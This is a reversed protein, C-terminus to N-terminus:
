LPRGAELQAGVLPAGHTYNTRHTMEQGAGWLLEVNLGVHVHPGGGIENHCTCAVVEGKAIRAGNSPARDLHGFWYRLGSEGDAYFADGPNASSQRTVVLEEPAIISVGEAFADDFAPYLPIGGTAHTLDQELVSRGGLCVPGLEPVGGAGGGAFLEYAEDVLLAATHDMAPEGAHPLGAPIRISRLLNFTHEGVWGTPEIGAQRQVGAVGTEGVNGSRGHAFGDSYADDFPGWPWRGARSVTRKYAQVDPGDESPTKGAALADPPYLPRPFGAVTVMPGGPYPNEWWSM